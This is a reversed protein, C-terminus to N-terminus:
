GTGIDGKKIDKLSPGSSGVFNHSKLLDVEIGLLACWGSGDAFNGEHFLELVCVNDAQMIDYMSFRFEDEDKFVALLIELLVHVRVAITSGKIGHSNATEHILQEFASGEAVLITDEM